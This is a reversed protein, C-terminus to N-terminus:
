TAEGARNILKKLVFIPQNVALVKTGIVTLMLIYNAYNVEVYNFLAYIVSCILIHPPLYVLAKVFLNIFSLNIFFKFFKHALVSFCSLVAFRISLFRRIEPNKV